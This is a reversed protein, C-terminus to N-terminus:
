FVPAGSMGPFAAVDVLFLPKGEFEIWPESAVHGTKFVPLANTKDYYGYPYGVLNVASAPRVMLRGATLWAADICQVHCNNFVGAPLPIVAVDAEKCSTEIWTRKGSRTFLPHQVTKVAGPNDASQHLQFQIAEGIPPKGELPANGTLVHINTVLFLVQKPAVGHLYYFGTGQSVTSGGKRLLVPTTLLSLADIPM